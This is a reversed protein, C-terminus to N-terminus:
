FRSSQGFHLWVLVADGSFTTKMVGCGVAAMLLCKSATTSFRPAV